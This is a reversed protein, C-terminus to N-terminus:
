SGLRYIRILLETVNEAIALDETHLYHNAASDFLINAGAPFEEDGAWIRYLLPVRPFLYLLTGSVNNKRYPMGGLSEAARPLMEPCSGFVEALPQVARKQFAREYSTGGALLRYPIFTHSLPTGDARSLYHLMVLQFVFHPELNSDLYKVRGAPYSVTFHHNLMTVVFAPLTNNFQCGSRAAKDDPSGCALEQRAMELVHGYNKPDSYNYLPISAASV